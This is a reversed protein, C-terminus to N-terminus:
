WAIEAAPHELSIQHLFIQSFFDGPEMPGVHSPIRNNREVRRNEVNLEVQVRGFIKERGVPHEERKQPAALGKAETAIAPIKRGVHKVRHRPHLTLAREPKRVDLQDMEAVLGALRRKEVSSARLGNEATLIAEDVIGHEPRDWGDLFAEIRDIVRAERRPFAMEERDLEATDGQDVIRHSLVIGLVDLQEPSGESMREKEIV